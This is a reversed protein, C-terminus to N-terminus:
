RAMTFALTRVTGRWYARRGGSALWAVEGQMPVKMGDREAYGSWRGEWPTLEVKDGVIRGRAQARVSEILGSAADFGFELTV